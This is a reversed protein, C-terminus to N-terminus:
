RAAGPPRLNWMYQNYVLHLEMRAPQAQGEPEQQAQPFTAAGPDARFVKDGILCLRALAFTAM